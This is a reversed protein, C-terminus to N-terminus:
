SHYVHASFHPDYRVRPRLRPVRFLDSLRVPNERVGHFNARDEQLTMATDPVDHELVIFKLAAWQAVLEVQQHDLAIPTGMILPTLFPRVAQEFDNM